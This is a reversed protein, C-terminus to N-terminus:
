EGQTTNGESTSTGYSVGRSIGHTVGKSDTWTMSISYGGEWEPGCYTEGDRVIVHGCTPCFQAM